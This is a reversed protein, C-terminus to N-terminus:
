SKEQKPIVGSLATASASLRKTAAEAQTSMADIERQRDEKLFSVLESLAPIDVRIVIPKKFM